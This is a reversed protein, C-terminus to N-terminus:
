PASGELWARLSRGTHSAACAAVDEPAGAVVVRGGEPGGEPGLDVVHDARGIVDLDHEVVLVTDGQEVLEDLAAVLVEVDTFHLGCTPEDLVYLTKGAAPRALEKALKLRQAEGGSLTTASQGLTLYGLGVRRLADLRRRAKPIVELLDLAEDVTLSLVDHISLGRYRVELTEPEYRRGACEECTVVADPLFQMSVRVVGEGACAACRGGEVNFSFRRADWGRARAEPLSAFLERILAFLGAYTAPNSRPTRGIPAQDVEVVADIGELGSLRAGGADRAEGRLAARVLPVLTDGVLSSKGSGSVGTVCTLTGLPIAVDVGRLNHTRAGEIVLAGRGRRRSLRAPRGGERLYRGTASRPHAAIQAPTGCAVLEGGLRGAGPGLDVVYDAAWMTAADHEVVVLTNGADRLHLLTSLLRGHDRPHLGISPEDLVYLVGVLGAGIQTALQVRQLEGGSLTSAGRALALYGLGVEDLFRLRARIEAVVREAIARAAGELRLADFFPRLEEIPACTLAHISREGVRVALAERRLRAGGCGPCPARHAYRDLERELYALADDAEGDARRGVYARARRELSAVVHELVAARKAKSLRRWPTELKVELAERLQRAMAEFFPAGPKGWPAIAGGAISRAPDPVVREPVFARVEGLGGCTACAGEPGDFSFTRPSLEDLVVGHEPCELRESLELPAGEALVVRVRGAALRAALALSEALRARSAARVVLRDVHVTVDHPRDPALPGVDTLELLAGDIEVRVYGDRRLRDLLAAHDGVQARVMPAAVVVRAGEPLALVQATMQAITHARVPRDCTPCHPTGARAFLLRLHDHIETLTGVTSRPGPSGGRQRVAIAPSLGEVSDVDPRPLRELFRRAYVSLSEVYRRRGEAYITDFALSSKGSGSPGTIVTLRDRPIRVDVGKLNHQRAGSVVLDTM